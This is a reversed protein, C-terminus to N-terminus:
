TTSFRTRTSDYRSDEKLLNLETQMFQDIFVLKYVQPKKHNDLLILSM